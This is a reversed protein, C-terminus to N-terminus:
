IVKTAIVKNAPFPPFSIASLISLVKKQYISNMFSSKITRLVPQYGLIFISTFGTEELFIATLIEASVLQLVATGTINTACISDCVFANKGDGQSGSM